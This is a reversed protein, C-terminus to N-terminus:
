RPPCLLSASDRTDAKSKERYVGLVYMTLSPSRSLSCFATANSRSLDASTTASESADDRALAGGDQQAPKRKASVWVSGERPRGGYLARAASVLDDSNGSGPAHV